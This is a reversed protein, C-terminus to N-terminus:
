SAAQNRSRYEPFGKVIVGDVDIILSALRIIHDLDKRNLHL